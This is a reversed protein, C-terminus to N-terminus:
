RLARQITNGNRHCKKERVTANMCSSEGNKYGAPPVFRGILALDVVILREAKGYGGSKQADFPM